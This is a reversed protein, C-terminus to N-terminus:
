AVQQAILLYAGFMALVTGTLLHAPTALRMISQMLGVLEDADQSSATSYVSAARVFGYLAGALSGYVVDGYIFLWAALVPLAAFPVRTFVGAGVIGGWVVASRYFRHRVWGAPVIWDRGPVPIRIFGLEHLAYVITIGGLAAVLPLIAGPWFQLVGAGVAAIVTGTGAAAVTMSATYVAMRRLWARRTETGEVFPALTM